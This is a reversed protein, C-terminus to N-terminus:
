STITLKSWTILYVQTLAIDSTTAIGAPLHLGPLIKYNCDKHNTFILYSGFPRSKNGGKKKQTMTLQSKFTQEKVVQQNELRM